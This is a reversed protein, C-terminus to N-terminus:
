HVDEAVADVRGCEIDREQRGNDCELSQAGQLALVAEGGGLVSRECPPNSHTRCLTLTTLLRGRSHYFTSCSAEHEILQSKERASTSADEAPVQESPSSDAGDLEIVVGCANEHSALVIPAERRERDPIVHSGKVSARPSATNVHHRASERALVDTGCSLAGANVAGAGAEPSFHRPDNALYSRSEDEHFVGWHESRAPKSPNESVQGRQPIICLPSHEPSAVGTRRMLSFTDPDQGVGFLISECPCSLMDDGCCQCSRCSAFALCPTRRCNGSRTATLIHGVPDPIAYGFSIHGVGLDQEAIAAVIVCADAHPGPRKGFKSVTTPRRM